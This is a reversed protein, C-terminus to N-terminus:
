KSLDKLEKNNTRVVKLLFSFISRFSKKQSSPIDTVLKITSICLFCQWWNKFTKVKTKSLSKFTQTYRTYNQNDYCVKTKNIETEKKSNIWIWYNEEVSEIVIWHSENCHYQTWDLFIRNGSWKMFEGSFTSFSFLHPIFNSHCCNDIYNRHLM